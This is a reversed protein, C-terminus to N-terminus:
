WLSMLLEDLYDPELGYQYLLEDGANINGSQVASALDRKLEEIIDDAEDEDCASGNSLLAQKLKSM